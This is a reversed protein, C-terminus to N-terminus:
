GPLKKNNPEKMLLNKAEEFEQAKNKHYAIKTEINKILKKKTTTM